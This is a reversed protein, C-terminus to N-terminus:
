TTPTPERSPTPDTLLGYVSPRRETLLPREARAQELAKLDLDRVLIEEENESAAAGVMDGWPDLFYSGGSYPEDDEAVGTWNAVGVFVQNSFAAAAQVRTWRPDSSPASSAIPNIIIEAGQIALARWSEPFFRDWCITVGVRGAATEFVPWGLDGATFYYREWSGENDPLHNKRYRGRLHGDADIVAASNFSRGHASREAMPVIVVLGTARAVDRLRRVTPGSAISEAMRRRVTEKVGCFYGTTSLEPFAILEAGLTAATHICEELHEVMVATSGAWRVQGLAAKVTSGPAATWREGAM